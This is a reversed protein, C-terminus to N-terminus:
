GGLKPSNKWSFAKNNINNENPLNTDAGELKNIVSLAKDPTNIAKKGFKHMHELYFTPVLLDYHPNNPNSQVMRIVYYKKLATASHKSPAYRKVFTYGKNGHAYIHIEINTLRALAALEVSSGAANERMKGGYLVFSGNFAGLSNRKLQNHLTENELVTKVVMARLEKVSTSLSAKSARKYHMIFSMGHLFAHFMSDNSQPIKVETYDGPKLTKLRTSRSPDTSSAHVVGCGHTKVKDVLQHVNNAPYMGSKLLNLTDSHVKVCPDHRLLDALSTLM